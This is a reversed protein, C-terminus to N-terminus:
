RPRLWCLLSAPTSPLRLGSPGARPAMGTVWGSCFGALPLFLCALAAVLANSRNFSAAVILHAAVALGAQEFTNQLIAGAVRVKDSGSGAGSGAIDSESFFRLRAVNAIGAALWVVVLLDIRIAFQLRSVFPAAASRDMTLALGMICITLVLAGAMAWAVGRQEQRFDQMATM